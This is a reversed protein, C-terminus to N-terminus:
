SLTLINGTYLPFQLNIITNLVAQWLERDLALLNWDVSGRHHVKVREECRRIHKETTKKGERMGVLVRKSNRERTRAV